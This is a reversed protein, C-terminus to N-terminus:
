FSGHAGSSTAVYRNGAADFVLDGNPGAGDTGVFKRLVGQTRCLSNQGSPWRLTNWFLCFGRRTIGSVPHQIRPMAVLKM